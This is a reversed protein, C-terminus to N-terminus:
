DELKEGTVRYIDKKEMIDLPRHKVIYELHSIYQDQIEENQGLGEMRVSVQFGEKELKEKWAQAIDNNAHEGAVFMFPVLEVKKLKSAKLQALMNDYSPYGEITGMFCNKIGKAQLMYAIMAYQSTNAYSTGHGVWVYATKPEKNKSLISIVNEYDEPTYLLPNGIRIEKFFPNMKEADKQISLMESGDILTSSQILIHTYGDIYLQMLAQLPNLKILGSRDRLRKMIIRSTFAERVEIKSFKEKVKRNIAEITLQRTDDHTTGFHVMLIAVKDNKGLSSFIDADEYDKAPLTLSVFLVLLVCLLKKM